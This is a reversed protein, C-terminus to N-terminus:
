HQHQGQTRLTCYLIAKVEGTDLTIIDRISCNYGLDEWSVRDKKLKGIFDKTDHFNFNLVQIETEENTLTVIRGKELATAGQPLLLSMAVLTILLVTKM